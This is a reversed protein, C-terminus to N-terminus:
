FLVCLLGSVWLRGKDVMRRSIEEGCAVKEDVLAKRCGNCLMAGCAYDIRIVRERTSLLRSAEPSGSGRVRAWYSVGGDDCITRATDGSEEQARELLEPSNEVASVMESQATQLALSQDMTEIKTLLGTDAYVDSFSTEDIQPIGLVQAEPVFVTVVNSADPGEIRVQSVDVGLEVSGDYEFWAKKYGVNIGFIIDTGDNYIEAVNHFTCDITALDAIKKYGSFDPQEQKDCGSLGLVIFLAVVAVFLQKSQRM